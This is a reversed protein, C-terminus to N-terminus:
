GIVCGALGRETTSNPVENARYLHAKIGVITTAGTTIQMQFYRKRSGGLKVHYEFVKGADATQPLRLDGTSGTATFATIDAGSFDTDSEQLKMVTAAGGIVGFSVEVVMAQFGLTDITLATGAGSNISIPALGVVTKCNQLEFM